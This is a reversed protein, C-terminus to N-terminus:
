SVPADMRARLLGNLCPRLELRDAAADRAELYTVRYQPGREYLVVDFVCDATVYQWIEAPKERRVLSPQGLLATVAGRDLGMLQKPDDDIVPEPPAAAPPRAVIQPAPAPAPTAADPAASVTPAPVAEVPAAPPSATKPGATNTTQCASLALAGLLLSSLLASSRGARRM